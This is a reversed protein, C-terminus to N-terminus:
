CPNVGNAGLFIPQSRQNMKRHNVTDFDRVEIVFVANFFGITRKVNIQHLRLIEPM